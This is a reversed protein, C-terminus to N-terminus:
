TPLLKLLILNFTSTLLISTIPDINEFFVKVLINLDNTLTLHVIYIIISFNLNFLFNFHYLHKLKSIKITKNFIIDLNYYVCKFCFM